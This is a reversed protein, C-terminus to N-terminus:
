SRAGQKAVSRALRETVVHLIACEIGCIGENKAIRCHDTECDRHIEHRYEQSGEPNIEASPGPESALLKTADAGERTPVNANRNPMPHRVMERVRIVTGSSTARPNILTSRGGSMESLAPSRV